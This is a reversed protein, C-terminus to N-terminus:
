SPDCNPGFWTESDCIKRTRTGFLKSGESGTGGGATDFRVGVGEPIPDTGGFRNSFPSPVPDMARPLQAHDGVQKGLLRARAGLAAESIAARSLARSVIKRAEPGRIEYVGPLEQAPASSSAPLQNRADIVASTLSDIDIVDTEDDEEDTGLVGDDGAVLPSAAGSRGSTTSKGSVPPKAANPSKTALFITANSPQFVIEDILQVPAEPRGYIVQHQSSLGCLKQKYNLRVEAQLKGVFGMFVLMVPARLSVHVADASKGKFEKTGDISVLVDGAQVGAKAAKGGETVAAVMIRRTGGGRLLLDERPKDGIEYVVLRGAAGTQQQRADWEEEEPELQPQQAKPKSDGNGDSIGCYNAAVRSAATFQPVQEGDGVGGSRTGNRTPPPPLMATQPAAATAASAPSARALKAGGTGSAANAVTAATTASGTAATTSVLPSPEALLLDLPRGAVGWRLGDDGGSLGEPQLSVPSPPEGGDDGLDASSLWDMIDDLPDSAMTPGLVTSQTDRLLTVASAGGGFSRDSSPLPPPFRLISDTRGGASPRDVVGAGGGLEAGGSSSPAGSGSVGSCSGAIPKSVNDVAMPEHDPLSPVDSPETLLAAHKTEPALM